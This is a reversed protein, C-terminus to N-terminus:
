YRKSDRAAETKAKVVEYILEGINSPIRYPKEVGLKEFLESVTSELDGIALDYSGLFNLYKSLEDFTYAPDLKECSIGLQRAVNKREHLVMENAVGPFAANFKELFIDDSVNPLTKARRKIILVSALGVGLGILIIILELM